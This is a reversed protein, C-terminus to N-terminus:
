DSIKWQDVKIWVGCNEKDVSYWKGEIKYPVFFVQNMNDDEIWGNKALLDAIFQTLNHFDCRRKSDRVFHLRIFLPKDIEGVYERFEKSKEVFIDKTAKEYKFCLPSKILLGSKTMMRSNKSSPVNGPIFIEM